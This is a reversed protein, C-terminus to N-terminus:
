YTIENTKAYECVDDLVKSFTDVTNPMLVKLEDLVETDNRLLMAGLEAWMESTAGSKGMQKCYDKRHGWFGQSYLPVRAETSMGVADTFASIMARQKTTKYNENMWSYFADKADSPIRELKKIRKIKTGNVSNCHDIATNFANIIDSDIAEIMKSGTVTVINTFDRAFHSSGSAFQAFPSKKFYGLIHDLQHLEEHFKVKWEAHGSRGMHKEWVTDRLDMEVRRRSPMYWGTRKDYYHNNKFNDSMRDYLILQEKNMGDVIDKFEDKEVQTKLISEHKQIISERFEKLVKLDEADVGVAPKLWDAPDKTKDVFYEKWDQYKMNAPVQYTKGEADRAARTGDNNDEFYPVTCSRCWVHFPPATEGVKWENMYFFPENESRGKGDMRRCIDSTHSDLTAVVEYKEVDLDNFCDKQAASSFYAAETMILRGAQNKSVNMKRAIVNIAKDPAKGLICMQTLETHISDVLQTKSKWIRDSFTQKDTTWPKSIIKNLKRQDIQGIDWAVGIGKQIEYATHYYDNTYVRAAMEDIQDLENGFAVEAANQTHIKLAELRSIHYRASANELETMWEKTIANERGYKIYEQVDWKFEKLEKTNLLRKAEALSIENNDAFRQYWANIKNEIQILAKDFAPTVADVTKKADKNNMEEIAKFRNQWYESSKM